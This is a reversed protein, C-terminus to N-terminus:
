TGIKQSRKTFQRGEFKKDGFDAVVPQTKRPYHCQRCPELRKVGEHNRHIQRAETLKEGHWIEYITQKRVDGVPHHSLDDNICLKVIGDYGISLRQYIVHCDFDEYYEIDSDKKLNDMLPSSAIHDVYPAFLQYYEELCDKIAPWVSQVKIIPKYSCARDKIRKYEKIKEYSEQFKAPRRIQEYTDYLGDFSITMWGLGAEMAEKFLTPTLALNNNIVAVEKIVREKAYRIMKIIDKHLFPEGRASLRISYTGYQGCEDLIKKYLDFSMFGKEVRGDFYTTLTYCMPCRMNCVTSIEVDIHSPFKSVYHLRPYYYWQFRNKLYAWFHGHGRKYSFQLAKWRSFVIQDKNVKM